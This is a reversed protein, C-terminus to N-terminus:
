FKIVLTIRKIDAVPIVTDVDVTKPRKQGEEKVKTAVALTVTSFDPAVAKLMAHLKRGDRTLVEVEHGINMEYQQRVTFPATVGASGVELSYDEADRDFAGEIKHSLEVCQDIDVGTPSDVTVTVDNDASVTVDVLFLDTGAIAQEVFDKLQTKDIM